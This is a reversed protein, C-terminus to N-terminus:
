TCPLDAPKDISHTEGSNKPISYSISSITEMFSILESICIKRHRLIEVCPQVGGDSTSTIEVYVCCIFLM